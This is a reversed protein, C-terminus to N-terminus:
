LNQFDHLCVRLRQCTRCNPTPFQLARVLAPQVWANVSWCHTLFQENQIKYETPESVIYVDEKNTTMIQDEEDSDPLIQEGCLGYKSTGWVYLKGNSDIAGSNYSNCAVKKHNASEM